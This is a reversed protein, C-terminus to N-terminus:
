TTSGTPEARVFSEVALELEEIEHEAKSVGVDGIKYSIPWASYFQFRAAAKANLDYITLTGDQRQKGWNGDEVAKFWNWMTMSNTIGRKLILNASEVNGPLKTSLVLGRTAKGWKQPTVESIEILKQSRKFGHFEQFTADVPSKSGTLNLVIDFRTAVLIEPFSPMGDTM